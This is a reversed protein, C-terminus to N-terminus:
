SALFIRLYNLIWLWHLIVSVLITREFVWSRYSNPFLHRVRLKVGIKKCDSTEVHNCDLRVVEETKFAERVKGVVNVYVGNSASCCLCRHSLEMCNMMQWAKSYLFCHLIHKLSYFAICHFTYGVGIIIPCYLASLLYFYSVLIKPWM